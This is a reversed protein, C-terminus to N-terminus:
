VLVVSDHSTSGLTWTGDSSLTLMHTHFAALALRHAVSVYSVGSTALLAYLHAETEADVASTAEDLFVIKPDLVLIRAFAIRQQEGPSLINSWDKVASLGGHLGPLHSLRVAQLAKLLVEDTVTVSQPYCLQTRLDAVTFYPRQPLFLTVDASPMVIQGQGRKWLGGMVRLLSSKGVGTPGAILLTIGDGVTANLHKVLQQMGNPTQVSVDDLIVCRGGRIMRIHGANNNEADKEMADLREQLPSLRSVQMALRGVGSVIMAVLRIVDHMIVTMSMAQALSGYSLEGAAVRPALLVYPLVMWAIALITEVSIDLAAVYRDFRFQQDAASRTSSMINQQEVAEGRYFAIAEAHDRVHVLDHRLNGEAIQTGVQRRILPSATLYAAGIQFLALAPVVFAFNIDLSIFVAFVAVLRSTLSVTSGVIQLTTEIFPQVNEAIRQDPNDLDGCLAIDYYVRKSLYKGVIDNAMWRSWNAQILASLVIRAQPLLNQSAYALTYILLGSQFASWDRALLADTMQKLLVSVHVILFSM